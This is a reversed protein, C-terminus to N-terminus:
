ISASVKATSPLHTRLPELDSSLRWRPRGEFEIVALTWLVHARVAHLPPTPYPFGQWEMLSKARATLDDVHAASLVDVRRADAEASIILFLDFLTDLRQRESEDVAKLRPLDYWKTFGKLGDFADLRGKIAIIGDRTEIM